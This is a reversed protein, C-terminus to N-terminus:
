IGSPPDRRGLAGSDGAVDPGPLYVKLDSSAASIERISAGAPLDGM